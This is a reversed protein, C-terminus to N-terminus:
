RVLVAVLVSYVGSDEAVDVTQSDVGTTLLLSRRV